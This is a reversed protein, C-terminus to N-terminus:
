IGTCCNQQKNNAYSYITQNYCEIQCKSFLHNIEYAFSYLVLLSMLIHDIRETICKYKTM